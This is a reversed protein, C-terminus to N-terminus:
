VNVSVAAPDAGTPWVLIHVEPDIKVADFLALDRLRAYLEGALVPLFDITRESGDDFAIRLTYDGVADFSVIRYIPHNM